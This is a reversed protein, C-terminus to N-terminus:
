VGHPYEKSIGNPDDDSMLDMKRRLSQLKELKDKTSMTSNLVSIVDVMDPVDTTQNSKTSNKVKLVADIDQSKFVINVAEPTATAPTETEIMGGDNKINFKIEFVHERTVVVGHSMETTVETTTNSYKNFDKTKDDRSREVANNMGFIQTPTDNNNGLILKDERNLIISTTNIFPPEVTTTTLSTTPPNKESTKTKVDVVSITNEITTGNTSDENEKGETSSYESSSKSSPTTKETTTTSVTTTCATTSPEETVVTTSVSSKSPKTSRTLETAKQDYSSESDTDSLGSFKNEKEQERMKKKVDLLEEELNHIKELYTDITSVVTTTETENVEQKVEKTVPKNKDEKSRRYFFTARRWEEISLGDKRDQDSQSAESLKNM